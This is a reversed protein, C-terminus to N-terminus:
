TRVDPKERYYLKFHLGFPNYPLENVFKFGLWKLWRHHLTNRSDALARLLGWREQMEELHPLLAKHLAIQMKAASTTAFMWVNGCTKRSNDVGWFILGKGDPGLAVKAYHNEDAFVSELSEMFPKGTGAYWERYDEPRIDDLIAEVHEKTLDQVQISM